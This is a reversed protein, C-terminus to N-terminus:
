GAIQAVLQLVVVVVQLIQRGVPDTLCNQFCKEMSWIWKIIYLKHYLRSEIMTGTRYMPKGQPLRHQSTWGRSGEEAGPEPCPATLFVCPFVHDTTVVWIFVSSCRLTSAADEASSADRTYAQTHNDNNWKEQEAYFKISQEVTHGTVKVCMASLHAGGGHKQCNCLWRKRPLICCKALPSILTSCSAACVGRATLQCRCLPRVCGVPSPVFVSAVTVQQCIM